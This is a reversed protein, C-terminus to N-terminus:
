LLLKLTNNRYYVNECVVAHTIETLGTICVGQMILFFFGELSCWVPWILSVISKKKPPPPPSRKYLWIQVENKSQTSLDAIGHWAVHVAKNRWWVLSAMETYRTFQLSRMRRKPQYSCVKLHGVELAGDRNIGGECRTLDSRVLPQLRQVTEEMFERLTDLQYSLVNM